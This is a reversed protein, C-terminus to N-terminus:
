SRLHDFFIPEMDMVTAEAIQQVTRNNRIARNKLEEWQAPTFDVRVQGIELSALLEVRKVLDKSDRLAGGQLITELRERSQSDVVIVRDAPSVHQFRSIQSEILHETSVVHKGSTGQVKEAHGLYSDYVDDPITITVKM